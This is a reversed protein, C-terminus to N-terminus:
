TRKAVSCVGLFGYFYYRGEHRHVVCLDCKNASALFVSGVRIGLVPRRSPLPVSGALESRFESCLACGTDLDFADVNNPSPVSFDKDHALGTM